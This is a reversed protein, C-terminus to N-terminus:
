TSAAEHFSVFEDLGGFWDLVQVRNVFTTGKGTILHYSSYPWDKLNSVLGHSVPNLHIYRILINYYNEDEVLIRKYPLSFLKGVGAM